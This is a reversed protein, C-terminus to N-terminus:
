GGDGCPNSPPTPQVTPGLQVISAEFGLGISIGDCTQNPDQTGDHMIDSAQAIQAAISQFTQSPPCFSTSISGAYQQLLNIYDSTTIVGSIIGLAAKTHTVDLQMTVVTHHLPIPTVSSATAVTILPVPIMTDGLSAFVWTDNVLYAQQLSVTTGALVPWADTGDLKPPGGLNGGAAIQSPLPNYSVGSGLSALTFLTTLQGNQLDTNLQTSTQANTSLVIPLVLHGWANELGNPGETHVTAANASGVPKCMASLNGPTVGDINYGYSKWGNTQDPTGNPDTDGIFLKTM